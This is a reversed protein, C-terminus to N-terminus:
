RIRKDKRKNLILRILLVKRRIWHWEWKHLTRIITIFWKPFRRNIKIAMWRRVQEDTPPSIEMFEALRKCDNDFTRLSIEIFPVYYTFLWAYVKAQHMNVDHETIDRIPVSLKKFYCRSVDNFSEVVEKPKRNSIIVKVEGFLNVMNQLADEVTDTLLPHAGINETSILMKSSPKIHFQPQEIFNFFAVDNDKMWEPFVLRQLWTTGTRSFGIHIYKM